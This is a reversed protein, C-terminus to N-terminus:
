KKITTQDDKESKTKYYIATFSMITVSFDLGSLAILLKVKSSHNM